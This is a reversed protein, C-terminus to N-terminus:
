KGAAYPWGVIFGIIELEATSCILRIVPELGSRCVSCFERLEHLMDKGFLSANVPLGKFTWADFPLSNCPLVALLGQSLACPSPLSANARKGMAGAASVETWGESDLPLSCWALTILTTGWLPLDAVSDAALIKLDIWSPLCCSSWYDVQHSYRINSLQVTSRRLLTITTKLRRTKNQAQKM